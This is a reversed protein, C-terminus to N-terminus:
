IKLCVTTKLYECFCKSESPMVGCIGTFMKGYSVREPEASMGAENELKIKRDREAREKKLHKMGNKHSIMTDESNLEVLCLECYFTKKEGKRTNSSSSEAMSDAALSNRSMSFSTPLGYAAMERAAVDDMYGGFEDDNGGGRYGNNSRIGDYHRPESKFETKVRSFTTLLPKSVKFSELYSKVKGQHLDHRLGFKM